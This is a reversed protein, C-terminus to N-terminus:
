ILLFCKKSYIQTFVIMTEILFVQNGDTKSIEQWPAIVLSLTCLQENETYIYKYLNFHILASHTYYIAFYDVELAQNM